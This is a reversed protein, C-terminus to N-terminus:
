ASRADNSSKEERLRRYLELMEDVSDGVTRVHEANKELEELLGPESALRELQRALDEPDGPRFLMGNEEHRVIGAMGGLNAAVVPIGAALASYIVLPANEYWTSPVVLVDIKGLEATMKENPFSGAFNIRPDEGAQAYVRRAYEPFGKFDGCVRLTVRGDEPLRGFASLLVDLGKKPSITGIYGLRLVDSRPTKADRFGSLDMGYPSLTMLSPDLGNETLKRRMIETPALIADVGNFRERLAETRALVARVLPMNHHENKRKELAREAMKRYFAGKDARSPVEYPPFWKEARRCELCNSSIDDPGESL